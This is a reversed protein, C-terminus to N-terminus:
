IIEFSMDPLWGRKGDALQIESWSSVRRLIRMKVGEHLTFLKTSDSEPASHVTVSEALVVAENLNDRYIKQQLFFGGSVILAVMTVIFAPVLVRRWQLKRVVYLSVLVIVLVWEAILFLIAWRQVPVTAGIGELIRLVFFRPLPEIRDAIRLNALRLNVLLDSDSGLLRRAREYNLIAKGYQGRKYYCNGLNYYVTGSSWGLNIFGEYVAIASDYDGARYYEGASIVKEVESIPQSWANGLFLLPVLFLLFVLGKSLGIKM